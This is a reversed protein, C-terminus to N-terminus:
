SRRFFSSLASPQEPKPAEAPPPPAAAAPPPLEERKGHRQQQAQPQLVRRRQAPVPKQVPPATAAPKSETTSDPEEGVALRQGDYVTTECARQTEALAACIRAAAAADTLPGAGLRLQMGPGNRGEKVMIIPRLAALEPNSKALGRWLARLGPVSNAGGLDIAFETKQIATVADATDGGKALSTDAPDAKALRDSDAPKAMPEAAAARYGTAVAAGAPPPPTPSSGAAPSPSAGGSIAVSLGKAAEPRTKDPSAGVVAPPAAAGSPGANPGVAAGPVPMFPSLNGFAPLPTPAPSVAPAPQPTQSEVAAIQPAPAPKNGAPPNAASQSSQKALAGTVLEVNQELITVRRYLQDRDTNLTEIAAGLQRAEGQTEKALSQLLQAQRSLDAASIRDKRWGQAAQNTFIALGIAGVAGAGWWGLRWMARRDLENEDAFLGSLTGGTKEAGNVGASKHSDRAM